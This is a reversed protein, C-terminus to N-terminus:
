YWISCSHKLLSLVDRDELYDVLDSRQFLYSADFNHKGVSYVRDLTISDERNILFTLGGLGIHDQLNHGVKLDEIVPIRHKELDARPGVGSLMLLQPSNVAGASLIVEKTARVRFLHLDILQKFLIPLPTEKNKGTYNEM